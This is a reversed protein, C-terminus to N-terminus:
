ILSIQSLCLIKRISPFTSGIFSMLRCALKGNVKLGVSGISIMGSIKVLFGGLGIFVGRLGEALSKFSFFSTSSAFFPTHSLDQQQSSQKGQASSRMALIISPLYIM